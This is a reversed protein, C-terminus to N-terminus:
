GSDTSEALPERFLAFSSTYGHLFTRGQVPGIEGNCFFGGLPVPGCRSTFARSDHDPQGYLHEGRGLCSFLLAGEPASERSLDALHAELDQTSTEADRLHFQAVSGQELQAAVTIAGSARDIELLNRILFDGVHYETEGERMGVGLFLSHRFLERDRPEATEYLEQLVEVPRKGDLEFLLNDRCSTVFGPEGIPRCGQAVLTELRLAGRLAVGVAGETTVDDGSWLLNGHPQRGGSALGGIKTSSPFARDLLGLLPEVACSFPDPLLVFHPTGSDPDEALQGLVTSAEPLDSPDGPGVVFPLVDVGPLSAVTVSLAPSGEVERGGGVVGNATCGLQVANTFRAGLMEPLRRWSAEHHPSVFAVVLDAELAELEQEIAATAETFAAELDPQTSLASAWKM